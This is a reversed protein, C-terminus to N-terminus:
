YILPLIDKCCILGDHVQFLNMDTEKGQFWKILQHPLDAGALYSFPYQGGFRCNMELVYIRDGVEFCDVDLNGIHMLKESLLKGILIFREDMRIEAVDTEGARMGLKKKPITFVYNGNLDNIVDLGYEQGDIYQQILICRSVDMKSEYQLYTQFIEKKLKTYLIKLESLSDIKYVGISGMGWRPKLMLPYQLLGSDIACWAEDLDLFTLPTDFGKNKLFTYTEWKDNCIHVVQEESVIVEIGNERFLKKNKSLLLLDVDFLPCILRIKNKKCYSLIVEIYDPDYILPSLLMGDASRLAHTMISNSAFVKGTPHLVKKFYDIMYTRRGVSTLLINM